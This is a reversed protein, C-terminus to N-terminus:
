NGDEGGLGLRHNLGFNEDDFKSITELGGFNSFTHFHLFYFLNLIQRDKEFLVGFVKSIYM